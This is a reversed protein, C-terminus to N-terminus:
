DQSHNKTSHTSYRHLMLQHATNTSPIFLLHFSPHSVTLRKLVQGSTATTTTGTTTATTSSSTTASQELTSLISMKGQEGIRPHSSIFKAQNILSWKEVLDSLLDILEKYTQPLSSSTMTKLHSHLEPILNNILLSNNPEFLLSLISNFSSSNPSYILLRLKPPPLYSM